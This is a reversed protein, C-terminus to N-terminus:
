HGVGQYRRLGRWWVVKAGLFVVLAAVPAIFGLPREPLAKELLVLGPYYSMFAFPLVWTVIIQVVRGYLNIPYKAFEILNQVMFPMAGTSAPEWFAVCNTAYNVSGVMVVSAALTVALFAIRWADWALGLEAASQLLIVSGVLVGGFGHISSMQTIVQLAPPIPRLLIRDFEGSNVLQRLRWQGDCLLEVLGRPVTALGYLFAVEWLTWGAISPIRTFLAWAFVYGALHTLGSGLIGIWFDIEYELHIRLHLLQLRAYIRAYHLLRLPWRSLVAPLAGPAPSADM